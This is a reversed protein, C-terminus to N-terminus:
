CDLQADIARHAAIEAADRTPRMGNAIALEFTHGHNTPLVKWLWLGTPDQTTAYPVGRYVMAPRRTPANLAALAEAVTKKRIGPRM